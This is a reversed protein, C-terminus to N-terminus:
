PPSIASRAVQKLRLESIDVILFSAFETVNWINEGQTLFFVMGSKEYYKRWHGHAHGPSM